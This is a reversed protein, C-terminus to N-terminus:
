LVINAIVKKEPSLRMDDTTTSKLNDDLNDALQVHFFTNEDGAYLHVVTFKEPEDNLLKFGNISLNKSLKEMININLNPSFRTKINLDNLYQTGHDTLNGRLLKQEPHGAVSCFAVKGPSATFKFPANLNKNQKLDEEISDIFDQKSLENFVEKRSDQRTIGMGALDDSLDSPQFRSVQFLSQISRYVVDNNLTIPKLLIQRLSKNEEHIYIKESGKFMLARQKDKIRKKIESFVSDCVETSSASVILKYSSTSSKTDLFVNHVNPIEKLAMFGAGKRGIVVGANSPDIDYSKKVMRRGYM